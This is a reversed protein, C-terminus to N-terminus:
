ALHHTTRWSCRLVRRRRPNPFMRINVHLRTRLLSYPAHRPTPPLKARLSKRMTRHPRSSIDKLLRQTTSTGCIAQYRTVNQPHQEHQLPIFVSLAVVSQNLSHRSRVRHHCFAMQCKPIHDHYIIIQPSISSEPLCSNSSYFAFVRLTPEHLLSHSSAGSVYRAVGKGQPESCKDLSAVYWLCIGAEDPLSFSGSM